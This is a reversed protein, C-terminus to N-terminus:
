GTRTTLTQQAALDVTGIANATLAQAGISAEGEVYNLTGPRPPHPTPTPQATPQQILAASAVTFVVLMYKMPSEGSHRLRAFATGSPSYRKCAQLSLDRM